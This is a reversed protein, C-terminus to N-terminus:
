STPGGTDNASAAEGHEPGAPASAQRGALAFEISAWISALVAGTLVAAVPLGIFGLLIVTGTLSDGQNVESATPGTQLRWIMLSATVAIFGLAGATAIATGRWGNIHRGLLPACFLVILYVILFTM